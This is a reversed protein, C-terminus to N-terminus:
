NRHKKQWIPNAAPFYNSSVSGRRQGIKKSSRIEALNFRANWFKPDIRAAEQLASEAQDYNGQRM